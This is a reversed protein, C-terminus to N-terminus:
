LGAWLTGDPKCNVLSGLWPPLDSSQMFSECGTLIGNGPPMAQKEVEVVRLPVYYVSNPQVVVQEAMYVASEAVGSSPSIIGRFGSATRHLQGTGNTRLFPGSMNFPKTKLRTALGGLILRLPLRVEGFVKMHAGKKATTLQRTSIPFVDKLALRAECPFGQIHCKEVPKWFRGTCRM